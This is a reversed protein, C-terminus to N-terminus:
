RRPNIQEPKAIETSKLLTDLSHGVFAGGAMVAVFCSLGLAVGVGIRREEASRNKKKDAKMHMGTEAQVAM